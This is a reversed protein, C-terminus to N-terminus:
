RELRYVKVSLTDSDNTKILNCKTYWKQQENLRVYEQGKILQRQWQEGQILKQIEIETSNPLVGTAFKVVPVIQLKNLKWQVRIAERLEIYKREKVM